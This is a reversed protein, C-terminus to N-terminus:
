DINQLYEVPTMKYIEKFCKIFYSPTNFGVAYAIESISADSTKLIHVAQKLRQSRIFATTSLGTYTLLKRHLQMRSMALKECFTEANFHPDALNDDLVTQLKNLFVEDTPTIAVDKADM